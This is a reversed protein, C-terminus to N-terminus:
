VIVAVFAEDNPAVPKGFPSAILVVVPTMEPVGDAGPVDVTVIEALLENLLVVVADSVIVMTEGVPSVTCFALPENPPVVVNAAVSILAPVGSAPCCTDNENFPEGAPVAVVFADPTAVIVPTLRAPIPAPVYGVPTCAVYAPSAVCAGDDPLAVSVIAFAMATTMQGVGAFMVCPVGSLATCNFAVALTGPVNTYAGGKPNM